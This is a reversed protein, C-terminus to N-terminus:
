SDEGEPAEIPEICSWGTGSDRACALGERSVTLVTWSGTKRNAFILLTLKSKSLGFGIAEEGYKDKLYTQVSLYPGCASQAAVPSSLCLFVAVLATRITLM